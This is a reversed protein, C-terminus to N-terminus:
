VYAEDRVLLPFPSGFSGGESSSATRSAYPGRLPIRIRIIGTLIGPIKGPIKGTKIGSVSKRKEGRKRRAQRTRIHKSYLRVNEMPFGKPFRKVPKKPKEKGFTKRLGSRLERSYGIRIAPSLGAPFRERSVTDRDTVTIDQPKGPCPHCSHCSHCSDCM